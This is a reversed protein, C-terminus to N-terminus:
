RPLIFMDDIQSGWTDPPAEEDIDASQYTRKRLKLRWRYDKVEGRANTHLLEFNNSVIDQTYFVFKVDKEGDPLSYYHWIEYPYTSPEFYRKAVGDPFGYKLLIRGRDTKYGKTAPTSFNKIAFSVRRKFDLWEQRYTEPYRRKWFEEIFQKIKHKECSSKCSRIFAREENTALIEMADLFLSLSDDSVDIWDIHDAYYAGSISFVSNKEVIVIGNKILEIKAMIKGHNITRPSFVGLIPYPVGNHPIVTILTDGIGVGEELNMLHSRVIYPITGSDEPIYVECYYFAYPTENPIEDTLFPVWKMGFKYSTDREINSIIIIPSLHPLTTDYGANIIGEWSVDSGVENRDKIAVYLNYVGAPLLFDERLILPPLKEDQLIRKQANKKRFDLVKGDKEISILYEFQSTATLETHQWKLSAPNVVIFTVLHCDGGRLFLTYYVFFAQLGYICSSILILFFLFAFRM